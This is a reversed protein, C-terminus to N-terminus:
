PGGVKFLSWRKFKGDGEVKGCQSGLKWSVLSQTIFHMWAMVVKCGAKYFSGNTANQQLISSFYGCNDLINLDEEKRQL